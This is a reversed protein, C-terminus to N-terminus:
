PWYNENTAFDAPIPDMDKLARASFIMSQKHGLAAYGFQVVTQADMEHESNDAAIWRFVSPAGPDLMQQWSMDGPQAGLAIADSAAAKAGAINERDEPRSQFLVGKFMFGSVIRRDREADVEADTPAPAVYPAVTSLDSVDLWNRITPALGFSDNPRSVYDCRYREGNMDTIEADVIYVDPESTSHIAFVEHLEM